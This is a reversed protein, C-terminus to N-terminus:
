HFDYNFELGLKNYLLKRDFAGLLISLSILLM